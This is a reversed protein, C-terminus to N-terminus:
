TVSDVQSIEEGKETFWEDLGAITPAWDELQREETFKLCVCKYKTHVM